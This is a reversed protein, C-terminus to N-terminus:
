KENDLAELIKEIGSGIYFVDGHGFFIIKKELDIVEIRNTNILCDKNAGLPANFHGNVRIFM